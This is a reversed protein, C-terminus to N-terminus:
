EAGERRKREGGEATPGSWEGEFPVDLRQVLDALLLGYARAELGEFPIGCGKKYFFSAGTPNAM